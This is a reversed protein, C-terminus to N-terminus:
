LFVKGITEFHQIKKFNQWLNYLMRKFIYTNLLCKYKGTIMLIESKMTFTM